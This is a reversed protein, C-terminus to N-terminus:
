TVMAGTLLKSYPHSLDKPDGCVAADEVIAGDKMVIIHSAMYLAVDMDHTIFLVTFGRERHLEKLMDLINKRIIVDLGSMAEDFILLEPGAALARAICVRKQQGGSLEHPKRKLINEPLEMRQMLESVLKREKDRPVSSLNRIPEAICRYVTFHPDLASAANQLVLQIKKYLEKGGTRGPVIVKGDSTVTGDDPPIIGTIIRALTSKGSGSEGVVACFEGNRLSFSVDRLAPIKKGTGYRESFTKSINNVSLTMRDGGPM